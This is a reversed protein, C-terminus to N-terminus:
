HPKLNDSTKWESEIVWVTTIYVCENHKLM